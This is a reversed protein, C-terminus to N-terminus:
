FIPTWEDDNKKKEPTDKKPEFGLMRNFADEKTAEDVVKQPESFNDQVPEPPAIPEAFMKPEEVVPEQPINMFSNEQGFGNPQPIPQSVEQRPEEENDGGFMSFISPKEEEKQTADNEYQDEYVEMARMKLKALKSASASSGSSFLHGYKGTQKVPQKQGVKNTKGSKGWANVPIEVEGSRINKKREMIKKYKDKNNTQNGSFLTDVKDKPEQSYFTPRRYIPSRSRTVVGKSSLGVYNNTTKGRRKKDLSFVIIAAGGIIMLLFTFYELM